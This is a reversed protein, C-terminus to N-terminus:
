PRPRCIEAVKNQACVLIKLAQIEVQQGELLEIRRQQTRILGQQEEIQRRQSEIQLQQENVANVLVVGVRDYKVGQIEGADNRTVLRSEVQEVEEAVLGLDAQGSGTWRFSVPRLRRLLDLGSTFERVDDKYRISSSCFSLQSFSNRCVQVEGQTVSSLFTVTIGGVVHLASDPNGTGIGVNGLNTIFMRGLNNTRFQLGNNSVSGFITEASEAGFVGEVNNTTNRVISFTPGAGFVGVLASPVIPTEDQGVTLRHSPTSTGIGVNAFANGLVLSNSQSVTAESGIATANTLNTLGVNAQFGLLTNNSGGVNTVGTSAGVFVNNTGITNSGGAGNGFFSNFDASINQAGANRGFFSNSEGTTNDEGADRGFFSNFRGSSNVNGAFAGFFSNSDGTNNATGSVAGFFSNFGGTTNALGANKGFFTNAGGTNIQGAGVGGFVNDTGQVSLVRQGGINFQTGANISSAGSLVYQNAAVGGLQTANDASLSKISYPSSSIAQRPSLPTFAGGGSPRVRIELFRNAGPFNSGFNLQVSFVGNQVLVNTLTITSGLQTGGSVASFLSFEFDHNGIAPTTNNLLQGQYTFETTQASVSMAIALGVLLFAAAVFNRPKM